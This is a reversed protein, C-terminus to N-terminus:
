TVIDRGKDMGKQVGEKAVMGAAPGGLLAAGAGIVTSAGATLGAGAAKVPASAIATAVSAMVAGNMQEAMSPIKLAGMLYCVSIVILTLSSMEFSNVIIATMLVTYIAAAVPYFLFTIVARIWKSLYDQFSPLLSLPIVLSSAMITIAMMVDGLILLIYVVAQALLAAVSAVFGTLQPLGFFGSEDLSVYETRLELTSRLLEYREAPNEGLIMGKIGDAIEIGALCLMPVSAMILFYVAYRLLENIGTDDMKGLSYNYMLMGLRIILAFILIGMGVYYLRDWLSGKESDLGPIDKVKSAVTALVELRKFDRELSNISNNTKSITAETSTGDLMGGVGLDDGYVEWVMSYIQNFLADPNEGDWSSVAQNLKEKVTQGGSGGGEGEEKQDGTYTRLLNVLYVNAIQKNYMKRNESSLIDEVKSAGEIGFLVTRVAYWDMAMSASFLSASSDMDKNKISDGMRSIAAKISSDVIKSVDVAGRKFFPFKSADLAFSPVSFSLLVLVSLLVSFYKKM